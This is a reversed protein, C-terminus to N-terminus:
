QCHVQRNLWPRIKNGVLQAKTTRLLDVSREQGRLSNLGEFVVGIDFRNLLISCSLAVQYSVPLIKQEKEM